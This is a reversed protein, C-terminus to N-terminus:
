PGGGMWHGTKEADRDLGDGSVLNPTGFAEAFRSLLDENSRSNLGSLLLLHHPQFTDRLTGLKGVIEEIAQDWSIPKWQPAIGKGKKPQSRKLPSLIREPDYLVQLGIHGRSCIEGESVLSSRNGKIQVAKGGAVKVTIGCRAPCNLCSTSIWKGKATGADGPQVSPASDSHKHIGIAGVSLGAMATLKLFKRRSLRSCLGGKEDARSLHDNMDRKAGM